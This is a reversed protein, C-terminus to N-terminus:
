EAYGENQVVVLEEMVERADTYSFGKGVLFRLFKQRDKDQSLDLCRAKKEAYYRLTDQESDVEAEQLAEEILDESIGKQRLDMQMKRMSKRNSYTELYRVAYTKDNVYGYSSVYDLAQAACRDSYGAHLLKDTLEKSSYDKKQLLHMAYKVARKKLIKNEIETILEEPVEVQEKLQFLNLEGKYLVLTFQHDFEVKVKRATLPTVATVLMM